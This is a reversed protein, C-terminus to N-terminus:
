DPECGAVRDFTQKGCLRPQEAQKQRRGAATRRQGDRCQNALIHRRCQQVPAHQRAQRDDRSREGGYVEVPWAVGAWNRATTAQLM